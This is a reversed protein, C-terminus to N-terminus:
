AALNKMGLEPTKKNTEAPAMKFSPSNVWFTIDQHTLFIIVLCLLSVSNKAICKGVSVFIIQTHLVSLCVCELHPFLHLSYVAPVLTLDFSTESPCCLRIDSSKFNDMGKVWCYKKSFHIRLLQDHPCFNIYMLKM